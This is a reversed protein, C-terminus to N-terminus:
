EMMHGLKTKKTSLYDKNYKGSEMDIPVRKVVKLGYGELGVIKRPNNTMLQISSVGIDCLIQAGVGYDRLDAGFGLKENAEVTDYGEEQLKYAKLKNAIGIGRGEQSMYLVVGSGHESIKKMATHLQPGCDCRLSGFVDGTICESHVRVLTDGKLFDGLTLSFHYKDNIKDKYCTLDFQGFDTPLAVTEVKKIFSENHMRYQILDKITVIKLQHEKSFEILDDIRAMEGNSKIIECIVGAPELGALRALDVAAETHGARKLVGMQRARLPFIHGPSVLDERKSKPNILVQISRARDSSSIGTSVGFQKDADVSVTFATQQSETNKEVMERLELRDLIPDTVPVCVLGRAHKIMFNIADPTAFHAALVLDGENERDEDDVVIVMKGNAIDDVAEKITSFISKKNTM